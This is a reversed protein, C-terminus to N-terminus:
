LLDELSIQKGRGPKATKAFAAFMKRVAELEAATQEDCAVMESIMGCIKEDLAARERRLQLLDKTVQVIDIPPPPEYTDVYRPINLNYDNEAIETASTIHSYKPIDERSALSSLIKEVDEARLQNIKGTKAFGKSGDIFVLREAPDKGFVLVAVPIGTNLFLNDPLGIVAHLLGKEILKRRIDGERNGRFLVGHPLIAALRGGDKLRSLGHLIFAYDAFQKPPYGFGDFRSDPKKEDFEYKLSYPPNTICIDVPIDPAREIPVVAGFREGPIVQWAGFFEGSLVNKNTVYAPINRVALNFLLLPVARKSLEECWFACKPCVSHLAITLGGTGACVDLCIRVEGGGAAIRGVLQALEKPTFDQMMAKRNSHEEQFYDTFGDYSLDGQFTAYKEFIDSIEDSFLLAMLREPLMFSETVGFLENIENTSVSM